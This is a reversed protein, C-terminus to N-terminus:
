AVRRKGKRHCRCTCPEAHWLIETATYVLRGTEGPCAVALHGGGKMPFLGAHLAPKGPGFDDCVWTKM